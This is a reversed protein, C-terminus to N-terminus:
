SQSARSATGKSQASIFARMAMYDGYPMAMVEAPFRRLAVALELVQVREPIPRM